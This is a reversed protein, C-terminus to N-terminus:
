YEGRVEPVLNIEEARVLSEFSDVKNAVALNLQSLRLRTSVGSVAGAPRAGVLAM